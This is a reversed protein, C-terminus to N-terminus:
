LEKRNGLILIEEEVELYVELFTMLGEEMQGVAIIADQTWSFHKFEGIMGITTKGPITSRSKLRDLEKEMTGSPDRQESDERRVESLQEETFMPRTLPVKM